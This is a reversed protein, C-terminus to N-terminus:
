STPRDTSPFPKTGNGRDAQFTRAHDQIIMYELQQRINRRNLECLEDFKKRIDAEVEAYIVSKDNM